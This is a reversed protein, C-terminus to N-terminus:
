YEYPQSDKYVKSNQERVVDFFSPPLLDIDIDVLEGALWDAFEDFGISQGPLETGEVCSITTYCKMNGIFPCFWMSCCLDEGDLLANYRYWKRTTGDKLFVFDEDEELWYDCVSSYGVNISGEFKLIGDDYVRKLPTRIIEEKIKAKELEVDKKYKRQKDTLKEVKIVM